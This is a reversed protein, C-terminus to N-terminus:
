LYLLIPLLLLKYWPAFNTAISSFTNVVSDQNLNVVVSKPPTLHSSLGFLGDQCFAEKKFEKKKKKKM